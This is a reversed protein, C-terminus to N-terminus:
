FRSNWHEYKRAFFRDSLVWRASESIDYVLSVNIASTLGASLGPLLLNLEKINAKKKPTLFASLFPAMMQLAIGNSLAGLALSRYLLVRRLDDRVIDTEVSRLSAGKLAVGLIMAVIDKNERPDFGYYWCYRACVEAAMYMLLPTDIVTSVGFSLPGLGGTILGASGALIMRRSANKKIVTEINRIPLAAIDEWNQILTGQNKLDRVVEESFNFASVRDLFQEFVFEIGDAIPESDLLRRFFWDSKGTLRALLKTISNPDKRSTQFYRVKAATDKDLHQIKLGALDVLTNKFTHEYDCIILFNELQAAPIDEVRPDNRNAKVFKVAYRDLTFAGVYARFLRESLPDLEVTDALIRQIQESQMEEIVRELLGIARTPNGKLCLDFESTMKQICTTRTGGVPAGVFGSLSQPNKQPKRIRSLEFGYIEDIQERSAEYPKVRHYERLADARKPDALSVRIAGQVVSEMWSSRLRGRLVADAILNLWDKSEYPFSEAAIKGGERLNVGPSGMRWPAFVKCLRLGGMLAATDTFESVLLLRTLSLLSNKKSVESELDASGLTSVLEYLFKSDQPLGQEVIVREAKERQERNGFRWLALAALAAKPHLTYAHSPTSEAVYILITKDYRSLSSFVRRSLLDWLPMTTLTSRRTYWQYGIRHALYSIFLDRKQSALLDGKSVVQALFQDREVPEFFQWQKRIFDPLDLFLIKADEGQKEVDRQM